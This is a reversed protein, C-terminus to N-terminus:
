VDGEERVESREVSFVGGPYRSELKKINKLIVDEPNLELAMCAQMWYWIVDGLEKELLARNEDNLPKGHFVIKKVLGTFEGAEDPMGLAATMLRAINCECDLDKLRHVFEDGRKSPKSTVGDVFKEYQQLLDNM